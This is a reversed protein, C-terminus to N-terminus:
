AKGLYDSSFEGLVANRIDKPDSRLMLYFQAPSQIFYSLLSTINGFTYHKKSAFNNSYREKVCFQYVKYNKFQGQPTHIDEFTKLFLIRAKKM